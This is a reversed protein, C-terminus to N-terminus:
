PVFVVRKKPLPPEFVVITQGAIQLLRQRRTRGILIGGGVDVLAFLVTLDATKAIADLLGQVVSVRGGDMRAARLRLFRKGPTAGGGLAFAFFYLFTITALLAAFFEYSNDFIGGLVDSAVALIGLVFFADLLVALLRQPWTALLIMHAQPGSQGAAGAPPSVTATGAPEV